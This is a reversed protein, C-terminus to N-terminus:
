NEETEIRGSTAIAWPIEAHTLYALLERAGELDDKLTTQNGPALGPLVVACRYRDFVDPGDDDMGFVFSANVMVGADHLRGSLGDLVESDGPSAIWASRLHRTADDPRGLREDRLARQQIRGVWGRMVAAPAVVPSIAQRRGSCSSYSSSILPM